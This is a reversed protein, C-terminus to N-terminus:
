ATAGETNRPMITRQRLHREKAGMSAVCENIEACPMPRAMSRADACGNRAMGADFQMGGQGADPAPVESKPTRRLMGESGHAHAAAVGGIKRKGGTRADGEEEIGERRRNQSAQQARQLRM